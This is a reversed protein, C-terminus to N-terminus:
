PAYKVPPVRTVHEWVPDEPASHVTSTRRQSLLDTTSFFLSTTAFSGIGLTDFFNTVFGILFHRGGPRAPEGGPGRGDRRRVSRAWVLLYAATLVALAALLATKM